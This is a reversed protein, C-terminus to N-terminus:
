FPAQSDRACGFGHSYIGHEKIAAQIAKHALRDRAFERTNMIFEGSFRTAMKAPHKDTWKYEKNIFLCKSTLSILFDKSFHSIGGKRWTKCISTSFQDVVNFTSVVEGMQMLQYVQGKDIFEYVAKLGEMTAYMGDLEEGGLEKVQIGLVANLQAKMEYRTSPSYFYIDIDNATKGMCWDRPAGGAIIAKPDLVEISKLMTDALHKQNRITTM